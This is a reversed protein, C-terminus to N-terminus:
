PNPKGIRNVTKFIRPCRLLEPYLFVKRAAIQVLEVYQIRHPLDYLEPYRRTMVVRSKRYLGTCNSIGSETCGRDLGRESPELRTTAPVLLATPVKRLLLAPM